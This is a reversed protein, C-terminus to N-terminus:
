EIFDLINGQKLEVNSYANVIRTNKSAKSLEQRIDDKIANLATINEQEQKYIKQCIDQLSSTDLASDKVKQVLVDADKFLQEKKSIFTILETYIKRDILEAIQISVEYIKKYLVELEDIVTNM